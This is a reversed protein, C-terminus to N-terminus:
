RGRNLSARLMSSRLDRSVGITVQLLQKSVNMVCLYFDANTRVSRPSIGCITAHDCLGTWMMALVTTWRLASCRLSKSSILRAAGSITTSICRAMPLATRLSIVCEPKGAIEGTSRIRNQM